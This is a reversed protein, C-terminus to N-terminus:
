VDGSTSTVALAPVSESIEIRVAPPTRLSNHVTCHDVARLLADRLDERLSGPVDIRLDVSSVRSPRDQSMAFDCTVSLGDAAGHRRLFREAYFGVCAALGAVFLETPTPGADEGGADMPQDSVLDHGRIRIAMRDGQEHTITIM